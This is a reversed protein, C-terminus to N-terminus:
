KLFLIKNAKLRGQNGRLVVFYNGSSVTRELKDKGDWYATRMSNTGSKGHYLSKIKEGNINYIDLSVEEGSRGVYPIQISGNFPNPYSHLLEFDAPTEQIENKAGSINAATTFKLGDVRNGRYNVDPEVECINLAFDYTGSKQIAKVLLTNTGKKISIKKIESLFTSTTTYTRTGTFSNSRSIM